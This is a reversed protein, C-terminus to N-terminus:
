RPFFILIAVVVASISLTFSIRDLLTASVSWVRQTSPPTNSSQDWQPVPRNQHHSIYIIVVSVVSTLAVMVM